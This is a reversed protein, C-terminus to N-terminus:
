SYDPEKTNEQMIVIKAKRSDRWDITLEQINMIKNVQQIYSQWRIDGIPRVGDRTYIPMPEALFARSDLGTVDIGFLNEMAENAFLVKGTQVDKIFICEKVYNYANLLDKNVANVDERTQKRDLIGQIINAADKCYAIEHENFFRKEDAAIIMGGCIEHRIRIGLIIMSKSQINAMIAEMQPAYDGTGYVLYGGKAIDPHSRCLEAMRWSQDPYDWNRHVNVAYKAICSFSEETQGGYYIAISSVHLLECSKEIIEQVTADMDSRMNAFARALILQGELEERMADEALRSKRSDLELYKNHFQSYVLIETLKQLSEICNHVRTVAEADLGCILIASIIRQDVIVPVVGIQREPNGEELEIINFKCWDDIQSLAERARERNKPKELMDYFEGLRIMPGAPRTLLNGEIDIGAAYVQNADAFTKLFLEVDEKALFDEYQWESAEIQGSTIYNLKDELRKQSLLLDEEYKKEDTIDYILLEADYTDADINKITTCFRVWRLAGDDGLIQCQSVYNSISINEVNRLIDLVRQRDDAVVYDSFLRRGKRLDEVNMGLGAANASAYKVVGKGNTFQAVLVVSNSQEIADRLYQNETKEMKEETVDVMILEMGKISGHANRTFHVNCQVYCVKRSETVIRYELNDNDKNGKSQEMFKNIVMDLDDPHFIDRFQLKGNYFEDCTYGFRNINRSIYNVKLEQDGEFGIHAIVVNSNEITQELLRYNTGSISRQDFLLMYYLQEDVKFENIIGTIPFQRTGNSLIMRRDIMAKRDHLQSWFKSNEAAQELKLEVRETKQGLILKAEYNMIAIEGTGAKFAIVPFEIRKAFEEYCDFRLTGM